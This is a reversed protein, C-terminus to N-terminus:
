RGVARPHAAGATLARAITAATKPADFPKGGAAAHTTGAHRAAELLADAVANRDLGVGTVLQGLAFGARTVTDNLEGVPADWVRQLEGEVAATLYRRRREEASASGQGEGNILRLQRRRGTPEAETGPTPRGEVRGANALAELLWGPLPRLGGGLRTYSGEPRVSPPAVVYGGWARVDIGWGLGSTMGAGSTVRLGTEPDAARFYLHCGGTPTAVMLTDLDERRGGRRQAAWALASAGDRVADPSAEDEGQDRLVREPRPGTPTDLDIVVLGSPGCSIGLNAAAVAAV